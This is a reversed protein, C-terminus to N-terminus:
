IFYMKFKNDRSGFGNYVKGHFGGHKSDKYKNYMFTVFICDNSSRGIDGSGLIVFKKGPLKGEINVYYQATGM